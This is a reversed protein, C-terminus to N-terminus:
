MKMDDMKLSKKTAPAQPASPVASQKAGKPEDMKMGPMNEHGGGSGKLQSESDILYGGSVAVKDGAKLGSLIQIKDNSTQGVQVDRPEFM